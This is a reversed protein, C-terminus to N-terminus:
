PRFPRARMRTVPSYYPSLLLDDTNESAITLGNLLRHAEAYLPSSTALFMRAASACVVGILFYPLVLSGLARSILIASFPFLAVGPIILRAARSVGPASVSMLLLVGIGGGLFAVAAEPRGTRAVAVAAGACLLTVAAGVWQAAKWEPRRMWWFVVTGLLLSVSAVGGPSEAISAMPPWLAVIKVTLWVCATLLPVVTITYIVGIAAPGASQVTSYEEAPREPSWPLKERVREKAWGYVAVAPCCIAPVLWPRQGNSFACFACLFAGCGWLMWVAYNKESTLAFLVMFVSLGILLGTPLTAFYSFAAVVVAAAVGLFSLRGGFNYGVSEHAGIVVGLTVLATIVAAAGPEGAANVLWELLRGRHAPPIGFVFRGTAALAAAAVGFIAIAEIRRNASQPLRPSLLLPCVVFCIAISVESIKGVAAGAALACVYGAALIRSTLPGLLQNDEDGECFLVTVISMLLAGLAGYLVARVPNAHARGYIYGATAGCVPWLALWGYHRLAVLGNRGYYRFDLVRAAIATAYSIAIGIGILGPWLGTAAQIRAGWEGGWIASLGLLLFPPALGVAAVLRLVRESGEKKSLLEISLAMTDSLWKCLESAGANRSPLEGATTLLAKIPPSAKKLEELAEKRIRLDPDNLLAKVAALGEAAGTEAVAFVPGVAHRRIRADADGALEAVTPALGKLFESYLDRYTLNQISSCLTKKLSFVRSELLQDVLSAAALPDKPAINLASRLVAARVANSADASLTSLMSAFLGHTAPHLDEQVIANGLSAVLAARVAPSSDSVALALLPGVHEKLQAASQITAEALAIRVAPESDNILDSCIQV